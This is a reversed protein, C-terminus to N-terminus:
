YLYQHLVSIGADDLMQLTTSLQLRAYEPFPSMLWTFVSGSVGPIIMDKLCAISAASPIAPEETEARISLSELTRPLKKSLTSNGDDTRILLHASICLTDLQGFRTVFGSSM